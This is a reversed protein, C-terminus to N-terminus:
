DKGLDDSSLEEMVRNSPKSRQESLVYAQEAAESAEALSGGRGLHLLCLEEGAAVPDGQVKLLEIGAEARVSDEKRARSAGLLGAAVGIRYADVRRVYGGSGAKLAVITEARPGRAPDEVCKVDGGQAEVNALFREWASGDSLRRRCEKEGAEVNAALGALVLMHATLRVTLEMLDEPGDGRLAEVVERVELFNGATRGLPQEMDSIVARVRRGLSAGTRVLSVALERAQDLTKMFAGSGCKVDFVLAEAGEAFKKSMISATILPISEVTGTVDRLAYLLRDAPVISESQGTMAFGCTRLLEVFREESLDTRYGPISELKDLTGGTHGLARGSMMPVVCGCAAALPALILSVKDGVGGTSHKDILPGAVGAIRMTDGSEIMARTLVGTEEFSMGKFFVAMALSAMQYDPIEGRVYGQILFSIEERGLSEGDRKKVILDVARM